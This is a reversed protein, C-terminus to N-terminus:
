KEEDEEGEESSSDLIIPPIEFSDDSENGGAADHSASAIDESVAISQQMTVTQGTTIPTKEPLPESSATENHVYATQQDSRVRKSAPLSSDLTSEGIAMASEETARTRKPSGVNLFVSPKMEADLNMMQALTRGDSALTGHNDAIRTEGQPRVADTGSMIDDAGRQYGAFSSTMDVDEEEADMTGSVTRDQQLGPMRPRLLGEIDLSLASSRAYLPLISRIQKGKPREPPNLVSTLMAKENKTLIATRDLLSRVPVSVHAQPIRSLILPLLIAAVERVAPVPEPTTPTIGQPQLYSDANTAAASNNPPKKAGNPSPMSTMEFLNSEPLADQCLARILPSMASVTSRPMSPGVIALIEVVAEYISRRLEPYGKERQFVWLLQELVGQTSAISVADLRKMLTTLVATAAIHIQPLNLWMGEREDRGVEPNLRAHDGSKQHGSTSPVTISLLKEMTSLIAGAPLTYMSSSETAIHSELLQLLGVLRECGAEIGRWGPLGISEDVGDSLVDGYTEAQPQNVPTRALSSWEESVARFVRDATRHIGKLTDKISKTWEENSTNKPACQPLLAYLKQALVVVPRPGSSSEAEEGTEPPLNCPTPALLPALLSRIQSVFPRFSSPHHPILRILAQLVTDLLPSILDPKRPEQASRRLSVLNLCSTVFPPISPTTIERLLSQRGQTLLFIRTLTIICLRKTAASDPKQIFCNTM